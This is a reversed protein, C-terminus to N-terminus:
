QVRGVTIRNATIRTLALHLCAALELPTLWTLAVEQAFELASQLMALFRTILKIATKAYSQGMRWISQLQRVLLFVIFEAGSIQLTNSQGPHGGKNGRAAAACSRSHRM